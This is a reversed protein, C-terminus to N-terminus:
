VASVNVDTGSPQTAIVFGPTYQIIVLAPMEQASVTHCVGAKM